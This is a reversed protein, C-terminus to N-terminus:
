RYGQLVYFVNSPLSQRDVKLCLGRDYYRSSLYIRNMILKNGDFQFFHQVNAVSMGFGTISTIPTWESIECQDSTRIPMVCPEASPGIKANEKLKISDLLV